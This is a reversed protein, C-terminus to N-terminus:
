HFSTRQLAPNSATAAYCRATAVPPPIGDIHYYAVFLIPRNNAYNRHLTLIRGLHPGLCTDTLSLLPHNLPLSMCGKFSDGANRAPDSPIAPSCLLAQM